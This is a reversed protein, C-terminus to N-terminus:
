WFKITFVRDRDSIITLPMGHLKYINNLFAQAVMATTFPHLLPIFHNYKSFKDVVVLICNASGSKPLEEIFDMSVVECAGKPVLL